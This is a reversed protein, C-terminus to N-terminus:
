PSARFVFSTEVIVDPQQPPPIRLREMAQVICCALADDGVTDETTGARSVRGRADFAMRVRVRGGLRPNQRLARQYCRRVRAHSRHLTQRPIPNAPAFSTALPAAPSLAATPIVFGLHPENLRITQPAPAPPERRWACSASAAAVQADRERHQQVKMYRAYREQLARRAAADHPDVLAREPPAAPTACGTALLALLAVTRPIHPPRRGSM